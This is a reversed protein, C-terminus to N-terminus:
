DTAGEPVPNGEHAHVVEVWPAIPDRLGTIWLLREGWDRQEYVAEGEGHTVRWAIAPCGRRRAGGIAEIALRAGCRCVTEYYGRGPPDEDLPCLLKYDILMDGRRGVGM